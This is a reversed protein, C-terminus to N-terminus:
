LLGRAPTQTLGCPRAPRLRAPALFPAPLRPRRRLGSHCPRQVVVVAVREWLGPSSVPARRQAVCGFRGGGIDALDRAAFAPLPPIGGTSASSTRDKSILIRPPLTARM